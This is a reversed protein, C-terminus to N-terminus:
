PLSRPRRRSCRAAAAAPLLASTLLTFACCRERFPGARAKRRDPPGDVAALSAHLCSLDHLSVGHRPAFPRKSSVQRWWCSHWSSACPWNPSAPPGPLPLSPTPSQPNTPPRQGRSRHQKQSVPDHLSTVVYHSHHLGPWPLPPPASGPHGTSATQSPPPIRMANPGTGQWMPVRPSVM